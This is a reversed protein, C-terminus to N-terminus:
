TDPKLDGEGKSEEGRQPLSFSLSSALSVWAAIHRALKSGPKVKESKWKKVLKGVKWGEL